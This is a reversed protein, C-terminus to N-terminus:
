FFSFPIYNLPKVARRNATANVSSGGLWELSVERFQSVLWQPPLYPSKRHQHKEWHPSATFFIKILPTATNEFWTNLPILNSLKLFDSRSASIRSGPTFKGWFTVSRMYTPQMWGYRSIQSRSYPHKAKTAVVNAKNRKEPGKWRFDRCKLFEM